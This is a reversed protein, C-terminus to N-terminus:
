EDHGRTELRHVRDKLKQNEIWLHDLIALLAHTEPTIPKRPPAGKKEILDLYRLLAPGVQTV